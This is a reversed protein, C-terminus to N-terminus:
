KKVSLHHRTDNPADKTIFEITTMIIDNIKLLTNYPINNFLFKKFITITM